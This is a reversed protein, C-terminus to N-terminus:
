RVQSCHGEYDCTNDSSGKTMELGPRNPVLACLKEWRLTVMQVLGFVVYCLEVSELYRHSPLDSRWGSKETDLRTDHVLVGSWRDKARVFRSDRHNSNSECRQALFGYEKTDV